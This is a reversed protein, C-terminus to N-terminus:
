VKKQDQGGRNLDWNQEENWDAVLEATDQYKCFIHERVYAGEKSKFTHLDGDVTEELLQILNGSTDKRQLEDWRGGWIV